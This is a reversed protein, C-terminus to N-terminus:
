TSSLSERPWEKYELFQQLQFYSWGHIATRLVKTSRKNRIGALDELVITAGIELMSIIKKSICHNVDAKFREERGSLLKLHRKASKTGAKQLRRRLSRRASCIRKVNRGSFFVNDSTVAINRIGRDIGTIKGSPKIDEMDKEFVIHLYVKGRRVVLDASRRRWDELYRASQGYVVFQFKKRGELTTMSVINGPFISYSRMDLRISCLRSRPCSIRGESALNKRVRSKMAKDKTADSKSTMISKLAESAKSRASIALQSPLTQRADRYTLKHLTIPNFTWEAFGVKCIDNFVATYALLTPMVEAPSAKLKFVATRTLIM